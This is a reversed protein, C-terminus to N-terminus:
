SVTFAVPETAFAEVPESKPSPDPLTYFSSPELPLEITITYEGAEPADIEFNESLVEDGRLTRTMTDGSWADSVSRRAVEAGSADRIVVEFVSEVPADFSVPDTTANRLNAVIGMTGDAHVPVVDIVFGATFPGGEGSGVIHEIAPETSAPGTRTPTPEKSPMPERTRTPTPEVSSPVPVGPSALQGPEIGGNLSGVLVAGIVFLLLVSAVLVTRLHQPVRIPPTFEIPEDIFPEFLTGLRKWACVTAACEDCTALHAEVERHELIGLEADVFASLGEGRVDCVSM